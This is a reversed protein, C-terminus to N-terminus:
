QPMSSLDTTSSIFTLSAETSTNWDMSEYRIGSAFSWSSAWLRIFFFSIKDGKPSIMLPILIFLGFILMLVYFFLVSYITYIWQFFKIM